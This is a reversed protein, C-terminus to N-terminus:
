PEKVDAPPSAPAKPVPKIEPAPPQDLVAELLGQARLAAIEAEDAEVPEHRITLKVQPM